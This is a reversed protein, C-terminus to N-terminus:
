RVQRNHNQLNNIQVRLKTSEQQYHQANIESTSGGNSSDSSAKKYREISAKVSLKRSGSMPQVQWKNIEEKNYNYNELPKWEKTAKLLVSCLICNRFDFFLLPLLLSDSIVCPSSPLFGERRRRWSSLESSRAVALPPPVIRLPGLLAEGSSPVWPRDGGAACCRRGSSFIVRRCGVSNDVSKTKRGKPEGGHMMREFLSGQHGIEEDNFEM